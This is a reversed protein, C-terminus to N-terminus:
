LAAAGAEAFLAAGFAGADPGLSSIRLDVARGKVVTPRSAMAARIEGLLLSGHEVIGGSFVVMEPDAINILNVVGLAVWGAYTRVVREAESREAGEAEVVREMVYRGDIPVGQSNAFLTPLEGAALAADTLRTLGNGSAWM